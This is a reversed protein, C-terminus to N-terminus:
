FHARQAGHYEPVSLRRSVLGHSLSGSGRRAPVPARRLLQWRSHRPLRLPDERELLAPWGARLRPLLFQRQFAHTRAAHLMKHRLTRRPHLKTGRSVPNTIPQPYIPIHPPLTAYPGRATHYTKHAPIEPSADVSRPIVWARAGSVPRRGNNLGLRSTVAGRPGPLCRDSPTTVIIPRPM